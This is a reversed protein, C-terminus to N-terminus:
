KEPTAFAEVAYLEEGDVALGFGFATYDKDLINERHGESEMWDQHIEMLVEETVPTCGSCQFINEGTWAWDKGAKSYREDIGEGEPTDHEFYGRKLMDAAHAQAADSLTPELVLAKLKQEARAANALELMRKRWAELEAATQAPAAGACGFVAAGGLLTIRLCADRRSVIHARGTFARSPRSVGM